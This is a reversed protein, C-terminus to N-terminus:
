EDESEISPVPVSSVKVPQRGTQVLVQEKIRDVVYSGLREAPVIFMLPYNPPSGIYAVTKGDLWVSREDPFLPVPKGQEDKLPEGTVPNQAQAPHNKVEINLGM